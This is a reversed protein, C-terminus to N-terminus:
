PWYDAGKEKQDVYYSSCVKEKEKKDEKTKKRKKKKILRFKWETGKVQM